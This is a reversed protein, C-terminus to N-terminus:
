PQNMAYSGMHLNTAAIATVACDLISVGNHFQTAICFTMGIAETSLSATDWSLSGTAYRTLFTPCSPRWSWIILYTPFMIAFIFIM